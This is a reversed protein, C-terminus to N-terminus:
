DERIRYSMLYEDAEIDNFCKFIDSSDFIYVIKM